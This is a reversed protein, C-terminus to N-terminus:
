TTKVNIYETNAKDFKNYTKNIRIFDEVYDVVTNTELAKKNKTSLRNYTAKYQSGGGSNKWVMFQMPRSVSIFTNKQFTPNLAGSVLIGRTDNARGPAVKKITNKEITSNSWNMVRIADSRMTDIKNNRVVIKDHYEGESYKHTGIARDLNHFTNNEITLNSNATRDFKSWQQSWGQTVKDPTDINIAEKNQKASPKSNTFVNNRIVSDKTADIEIFHGSKMNQFRIGEIKVRQNHGAIIAINDNLYKLDMTASGEGIFSINKDGNYNGYVGKKNALSPRILQFISTSAGFKSTGTKNGKVITVGNQLKITVNSPVYLTNSITYSGKKLVLTGGGTAQLRELYSRLLYYHKTYKNYTTFNMMNKKYTNSNTSITYTPKAKAAASPAQFPTFLGLTLVIAILIFSTKQKM